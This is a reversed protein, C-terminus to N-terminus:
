VVDMVWVACWEEVCKAQGRVVVIMMVLKVEFGLGDM